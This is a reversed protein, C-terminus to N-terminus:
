DFEIVQKPMAHAEPDTAKRATTLRQILDVGGTRFSSSKKLAGGIQFRLIQDVQWRIGTEEDSWRVLKKRPVKSPGLISIVALLEEDDTHEGHVSNISLWLHPAANQYYRVAAAADDTGAAATSAVRDGWHRFAGGLQLHSDIRLEDSIRCFDLAAEGWLTAQEIIDLGTSEGALVRENIASCAMGNLQCELDRFQYVIV